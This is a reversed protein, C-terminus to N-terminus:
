VVATAFNVTCNRHAKDVKCANGCNVRMIIRPLLTNDNGNTLPTGFLVALSLCPLFECEPRLNSGLHKAAAQIGGHPHCPLLDRGWLPCKNVLGQRRM